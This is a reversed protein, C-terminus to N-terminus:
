RVLLLLLISSILIIGIVTIIILKIRRVAPPLDSWRPEDKWEKKRSLGLIMMAIGAITFAYNETAIGLPIWTIGIIFFVRYNTKTGYKRKIM